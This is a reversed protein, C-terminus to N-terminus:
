HCTPNIILTSLTITILSRPNFKQASFFSGSVIMLHDIMIGHRTKMLFPRVEKCHNLSRDLLAVLSVLSKTIRFM